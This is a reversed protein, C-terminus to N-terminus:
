EYRNNGIVVVRKGMLDLNLLGTSLAKIDKGFQEYTKEIYEVEKATHDKKYKYAINQAYQTCSYDVLERYNKVQRAQYVKRNENDGM